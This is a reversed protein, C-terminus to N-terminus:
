HDPKFEDPQTFYGCDASDSTDLPVGGASKSETLSCYNRVQPSKDAVGPPARRAMRLQLMENVTVKEMEDWLASIAYVPRTHGAVVSRTDPNDAGSCATFVPM